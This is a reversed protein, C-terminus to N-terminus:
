YWKKVKFIEYCNNREFYEQINKNVNNELEEINCLSFLTGGTLGILIGILVFITEM